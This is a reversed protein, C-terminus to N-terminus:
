FHPVFSSSLEDLGGAGKLGLCASKASMLFLPALVDFSSALAGAGIGAIATAYEFPTRLNSSNTVWDELVRELISIDL